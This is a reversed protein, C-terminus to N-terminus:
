LKEAKGAPRGAHWLGKGRARFFLATGPFYFGNIVVRGRRNEIKGVFESLQRGGVAGRAFLPRFGGAKRDM